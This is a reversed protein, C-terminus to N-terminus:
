YMLMHMTFKKESNIKRVPITIMKESSCVPVCPKDLTRMPFTFHINSILVNGSYDPIHSWQLHLHITSM